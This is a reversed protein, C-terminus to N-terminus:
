SCSLLFGRQIESDVGVLKEMETGVERKVFLFYVFLLFLSPLSSDFYVASGYWVLGFSIQVFLRSM